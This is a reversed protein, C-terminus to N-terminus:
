GSLAAGESWRERAEDYKEAAEHLHAQTSHQQRRLEEDRQRDAKSIRGSFRKLSRGWGAPNASNIQDTGDTKSNSPQDPARSGASRRHGRPGQSGGVARPIRGVASSTLFHHTIGISVITTGFLALGSLLSSGARTTIRCGTEDRQRVRHSNSGHVTTSVHEFMAAHSEGVFFKPPLPPPLLTDSRRIVARQQVRKALVELSDSGDEKSSSSSSSSGDESKAGYYGGKSILRPLM